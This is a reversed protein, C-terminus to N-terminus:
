QPTLVSNTGTETARAAGYPVANMAKQIVKQAGVVDGKEILNAIASKTLAGTAHYAPSQLFTSLMNSIAAGVVPHGAPIGAGMGLGAAVGKRIIGSQGAKREIADGLVGAAKDWFSFEKNLKAIDPYQSSFQERIANGLEKQAAKKAADFDTFSFNKKGFDMIQRLKRVNGVDAFVQTGDASTEVGLNALDKMVGQLASVKDTAASPVVGNVTFGDIKKQISDFLNGVEFKANTPLAEYAAEIKGGAEDRLTEYKGLLSERTLALPTRQALEPAIKATIAKNDKTTPALIKAIDEQASNRIGQAGGGARGLLGGLLGGTATGIVKSTDPMISSQLDKGQSLDSAVGAGYGLGAGRTVGSSLMKPILGKAAVESGVEAAGKAALAGKGLAGAAGLGPIAWMASLATDGLIQGPTKTNQGRAVDLADGAIPFLFDATKRLWSHEPAAPTAPAQQTNTLFDTYKHGDNTTGNPYKQAMKQTLVTADMKSYPTGDAAVGNPYKQVIRQKFAEPNLDNPM